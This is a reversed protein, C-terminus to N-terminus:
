TPIQVVVEEQARRVDKQKVRGGSEQMRRLENTKKEIKEVVPEKNDRYWQTIAHKCRNLNAKVNQWKDTRQEKLRWVQRIIDKNEKKKGWGATYRFLKKYLRYDPTKLLILVLAHDSSKAVMIEVRRGPFMENWEVNTTARDLREQIHFPEEHRNSWTFRLGTYGLDHL